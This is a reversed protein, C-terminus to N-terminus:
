LVGKDKLRKYLKESLSLVYSKGKGEDTLRDIKETPFVGMGNLAGGIAGVMCAITDTDGGMRIADMMGEFPTDFHKLFLYIATVVSRHAKSSTGLQRKVRSLNVGNELLFGKAKKLAYLYIEKDEGEYRYTYKYVEERIDAEKEILVDLFDIPLFTRPDKKLAMSIAYAMLVGGEVGLPHYHTIISSLIANKILLNEDYFYFLGIPAIRMAAGNGFSGGPFSLKAVESWSHGEKLLRIVKKAGRGYGRYSHYNEVFKQALLEPDFERELLTEMISIMMETDDTYDGDWVYGPSEIEKISEEPLRKRGEVEKGLADGLFAGIVGGKLKELFTAM